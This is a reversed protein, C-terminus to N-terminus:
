LQLTKNPVGVCAKNPLSAVITSLPFSFNLVLILIYSQKQIIPKSPQIKTGTHSCLQLQTAVAGNPSPLAEEAHRSVWELGSHLMQELSNM